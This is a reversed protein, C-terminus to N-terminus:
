RGDDLGMRADRLENAVAIAADEARKLMVECHDLAALRDRQAESRADALMRTAKRDAEELVSSESVLEMKRMEARAIIEDAQRQADAYLQDAQMQIDVMVKDARQKAELAMARAKSEAEALTNKYMSNAKEKIEAEKELLQNAYLVSDPLNDRIEQILAMVIDRNVVYQSTLPVRKGDNIHLVLEDLKAIVRRQQDKEKEKRERELRDARDTEIRQMRATTNMMPDTTSEMIHDLDEM